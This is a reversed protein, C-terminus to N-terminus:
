EIWGLKRALAIAETRRQVQLKEFIRRNHGKVTDLALFLREGIQRNSLGETILKLVELERQTLPEIQVIPKDSNRNSEAECAALLKQIYDTWRGHAAAASLLLVITQGEGIFIRMFGGPEALELAKLLLQVAQEEEGHAHMVVAHLVMAKLLEDQWGKVEAQERFPILESLASATHGNALHVRTLSLPLQHIEALYKAEKLEGLCLKALVQLEAIDPLRNLLSNESVYQKTDALIVAANVWDLQALKLRALYIECTVLMDKSNVQRAMQSCKQVHQLANQLDNWEYCIRALGMHAECVAALPLDGSLYLASRYREEAEFLRNDGEFLNGQGVIAMISIVNSGLKRSISLVETYAERAEARDGRLQCAVGLLWLATIRVPLSQPNLYELARRSQAIVNDVQQLDLATGAHRPLIQGVLDNTKDGVESLQLADEATQLKHEAVSPQGGIAIAAIAARTAAILGIYDSGKADAQLHQMAAEAALLKPEIETPKGAMLLASGYIVWLAPKADLEAKSLTELWNLVPAVEGQLHLPMGGGEVLRAASEINNAAVAHRFAELTLGNNEYWVSARQHLQDVSVLKSASIYKQLRQRLLEAFLHHYRYWRQERDLPVIFLNARELSALVQDSPITSADLLLADCLPGCFRDLISTYLLFQQLAESQNHLVEEILYDMLLRQNGSFSKVFADAEPHGHLSVAAIQLGAVWGETRTELSSVAEVTLKVDMVDHLFAATEAYNFKLDAVGLETVQNRVRYRSLVLDPERRTLLVIHVHPPLHELLFAVTEHVSTADILHYDDLVIIFPESFKVLDNILTALISEIPPRQPSQLLISADRVLNESITHLAAFLYTIFRNPDNDGEDLSLWASRRDCGSLWQSALTTKGYGASASILTLKRYLGENLRAILQTRFIIKPQTPPINLKTSIISTFIIM